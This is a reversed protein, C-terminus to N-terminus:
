DRACLGGPGIPLLRAKGDHISTLHWLLNAHVASLCLFPPALRLWVDHQRSLDMKGAHAVEAAMGYRMRLQDVPGRSIDLARVGTSTGRVSFGSVDTVITRHDLGPFCPLCGLTFRSPVGAASPLHFLGGPTSFCSKFGCLVRDFFLGRAWACLREHEHETVLNPFSGMMMHLGVEDM